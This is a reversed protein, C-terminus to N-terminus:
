FVKNEKLRTIKIQYKKKKSDPQLKLKGDFWSESENKKCGIPLVMPTSSDDDVVVIFCLRIYEGIMNMDVEM